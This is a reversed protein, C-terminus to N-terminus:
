ILGGFLLRAPPADAGQGGLGRTMVLDRLVARVVAAGRFEMGFASADGVHADSTCYPVYVKNADALRPAKSALLGSFSREERWGSSTCRSHDKSGDACRKACSPADWCWGGSELLVIWDSSNARGAAWYYGSASGDNCVADAYATLRQLALPTPCNGAYISLSCLVSALWQHVGESM